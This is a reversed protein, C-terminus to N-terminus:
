LIINGTIRQFITDCTRTTSKVNDQMHQSVPKYICFHKVPLINDPM